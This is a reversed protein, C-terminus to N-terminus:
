AAIIIEGAENVKVPRVVGNGDIGCLLIYPEGADTCEVMKAQGDSRKKAILEIMGKQNRNTTNQRITDSAPPPITRRLGGPEPM